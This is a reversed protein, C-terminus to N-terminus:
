RGFFRNAEKVTDMANKAYVDAGIMDAYEQTLVAGGVAVMGDWGAARLQRITEEMAPVTTTMLASLGVMRINEKVATEVIREPPVDKGLDVVRYSYNELLVKVINKGIDHIDGKVTALIIKPATGDGAPIRTRIVDFAATAAEASMLLQPLYVRKEEFGAGVEDLAPIIEEHILLMPERTELLAAAINASKEKLGHVIADKLSGSDTAGAAAGATKGSAATQVTESVNQAFALYELCNDDMANLALFSRYAKMMEVSFPNMIAAKLGKQLAMTFFTATIFDRHPLGFSINSIGLSCIGGLRNRILEITEVATLAAHPDSSITLALPDFILDCSRIGYKEAEEMIKKAIAFRGEATQPIGSEDLTLAVVLGGYKKALPFVAAMSEAKGNVSNIMPKGNYIRLAKALADANGTDLQLPVDTVSQVAFVCQPLMEAEDLEPLGVNVDLVSAGSEVQRIAEQMVYDMNKERLAAKLLKKGTPNLREGILVPINDFYVAHSYSSVVPRNKQRLAPLPLDHTAEIEAKIYDPTTGCCGGIIHAGAHVIERMYGAFAQPDVDYVTKGNETRPLGANPSVIVPLSTAAALEPVVTLMQAPGLSCNMGIADVGLGELMAAMAQPDAGTMLKKREDYVCTVFVPLDSNEKAALVAAKTEYCDNMTEILIVDAGCSAGARVIEAFRAVAEEFDLDGLPALMRGLPGIDLAVYRPHLASPRTGEGTRSNQADLPAVEPVRFRERTEVAIRVGAQVVEEVSYRGDKGDYKFSNAGFTNTTIINSGAAYYSSHIDAIIEPHLINWTEPLEGPQLGRAQLLTGMGGDFYTISTRIKELINM